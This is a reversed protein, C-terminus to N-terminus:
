DETPKDPMNRVYNMMQDAIRQILYLADAKSSDGSEIMQEITLMMLHQGALVAGSACYSNQPGVAAIRQMIRNYDVETEGELPFIFPFFENEEM